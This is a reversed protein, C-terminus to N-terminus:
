AAMSEFHPTVTLWPKEIVLSIPILILASTTLQGTAAHMSPVGLRPFRKAYIIAVAYCAAATLVALEGLVHHGGMLAGPGIITIVGAFGVILGAIKNFQFKEDHTFYHAALVTFFPVTGNLISSLGATIYIQGWVILSFPIVNGFVAMIAFSKWIKLPYKLIQGRLLLFSNLALSALTVRIAVITLTPFDNIAIEMFLFSGGWIMSLLILLAWDRGEMKHSIANM